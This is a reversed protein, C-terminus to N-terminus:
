GKKHVEIVELSPSLVMHGPGACACGTISHGSRRCVAIANVTETKGQSNVGSFLTSREHYIVVDGMISVSGTGQPRVTVPKSAKVTVERPARVPADDDFVMGESRAKEIADLAERSMRGRGSNALGLSAAYEKRRM